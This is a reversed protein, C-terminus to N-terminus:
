SGSIDMLTIRFTLLWDFNLRNIAVELRIDATMNKLAILIGFIM